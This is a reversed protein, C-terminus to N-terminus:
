HIKLSLAYVRNKPIANEKSIAAVAEKARMTLMKEKLLALIDDDSLEKKTLTAGEVILVMEGILTTEDLAALEGLSSRIYEEHAKTLERCLCAQRTQAL